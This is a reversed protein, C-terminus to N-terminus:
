GSAPELALALRQAFDVDSSRPATARHVALAQAAVELQRIQARAEAFSSPSAAHEPREGSARGLRVATTVRRHCQCAAADSVLGCHARTFSAVADRARQLRKRFAAPEIALVEAAEPAALELIEGLVYALRHPRDLCQLMALTCGVKIEETLISREGSAPGDDALGDVLDDAMAEFSWRQREVCSKKVDLLYNTAVRYIWTRLLSRGDFQALRTVVRVLIEQTADEADERRWLMRVALAYIDPQVRRVLEAVADRQGHVARAALEELTAAAPDDRM